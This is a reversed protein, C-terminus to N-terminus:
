LMVGTATDKGKAPRKPQRREVVNCAKDCKRCCYYQTTRGEVKLPAGCCDSVCRIITATM